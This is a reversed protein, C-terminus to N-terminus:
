YRGYMSVQNWACYTFLLKTPKYLVSIGQCIKAVFKVPWVKANDSVNLKTKSTVVQLTKVVPNVKYLSDIYRCLHAIYEFPCWAVHFYRESDHFYYIQIIQCLQSISPRYKGLPRWVVLHRSAGFCRSNPKFKELRPSRQSTGRYSRQRTALWIEFCQSVWIM